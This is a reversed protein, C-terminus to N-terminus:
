KLTIWDELVGTGSVFAEGSCTLPWADREQKSIIVDNRSLLGRAQYRQFLADSMVDFYSVLKRGRPSNISVAIDSYTRTSIHTGLLQGATVAQGETLTSDQLKIHFIGFQFDPYDDSRIWVQTGLWEEFRWSVTGNVPIYLRATEWGSEGNLWFYHKMSRCNEFYDSYDHGVASRFKSIKYIREFEIYNVGVFRPYGWTDVDWHCNMTTWNDLHGNTTFAGGDCTLPDADRAEKDIVFERSTSVGCVGYSQFLSDTIVDFYSILRWGRTTNVSVAIESATQRDAHTGILQGEHLTTGIALSDLPELHFIHFEFDPYEKSQISIQSGIQEQVIKTVKGPVPSFLSLTSWDFDNRPEFYHKMSRCNEFGDSYDNGIASRFKSIRAMRGADIFNVRVFRPPPMSDLDYGAPATPKKDNKCNIFLTLLLILAASIKIQSILMRM